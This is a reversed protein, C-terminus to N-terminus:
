CSRVSTGVIKGVASSCELIRHPCFWGANINDTPRTLRLNSLAFAHLVHVRPTACFGSSPGADSSGRLCQMRGGVRVVVYPVLADLAGGALLHMWTLFILNSAPAFVSQSARRLRQAGHALMSLSLLPLLLSLLVLLLPALPLFLPLRLWANLSQCSSQLSLPARLRSTHLSALPRRM